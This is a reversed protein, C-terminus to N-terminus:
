TTCIDSGSEKKKNNLLTWLTQGVETEQKLQMTITKMTDKVATIIGESNSTEDNWYITEYGSITIKVEDPM